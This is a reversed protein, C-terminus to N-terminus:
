KACDRKLSDNRYTVGYGEEKRKNNDKPTAIGFLYEKAIQEYVQEQLYEMGNDRVFDDITNYGFQKVYLLCRSHFEQHVPKIKKSIVINECVDHKKQEYTAQEYLKKEDTGFMMFVEDLSCGFLKGYEQYSNMVEEHRKKILLDLQELDFISLEVVQLLLEEKVEELKMEYELNYVRNYIYEKYEQVNEYGFSKKVFTDTLEPYVIETIKYIYVKFKVKENRLNEDVYDEQFYTEFMLESFPRVGIFHSEFDASLDSAGLEFEMVKNDLEECCIGDIYGSYRIYIIDGPLAGRNEIEEESAYARLDFLIEEQIEEENVTVEFPSYCFKLDKPLIVTVETTGCFLHLIEVVLVVCILCLLMYITKKKKLSM